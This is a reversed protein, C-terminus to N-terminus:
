RRLSAINIISGRITLIQDAIKLWNEYENNIEIIKEGYRKKDADNLTSPIDFITEWESQVNIIKVWEDNAKDILNNSDIGIQLYKAAKEVAPDVSVKQFSIGILAWGAGIGGAYPGWDRKSDITALLAGLGAVIGNLWSYTNQYSKNKDQVLELDNLYHSIQLASTSLSILKEKIASKYSINPYHFTDKEELKVQLIQYGPQNEDLKLNDYNTKKPLDTACSNALILVPIFMLIAQTLRM